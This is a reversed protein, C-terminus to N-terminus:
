KADTTTRHFRQLLAYTIEIPQPQLAPLHAEIRANPDRTRFFAVVDDLTRFRSGTIQRVMVTAETLAAADDNSGAACLLAITTAYNADNAPLPHESVLSFLSETLKVDPYRILHASLLIITTPEAKAAIATHAKEFFYRSQVQPYEKWAPPWVVQRLSLPKGVARQVVFFSFAGGLYLVALVAVYFLAARGWFPRMDKAAAACVLRGDTAKILLPCVQQFRAPRNWTVAADCGTEMARGSDSPSQCPCIAGSKLRARYFTKRSNWYFLAWVFRFFDAILGLM